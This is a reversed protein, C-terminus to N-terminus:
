FEAEAMPAPVFPRAGFRTLFVAGIAVVSAALEVWLGVLPIKGIAFLALMVLLTGVATTMAPSLPAVRRLAQGAAWGLAVYGYGVVLAVLGAVLLALPILVLTFVMAVLLAPLLMAALGGVAASVIVHRTAATAVASLAGPVRRSLWYGAAALPLAAAMWRLFAAGANRERDLDELPLAMSGRLIEGEVTAGQAQTLNGGALRVDGTVRASEELEVDGGLAFLDGALEGGLTLRGDLLYVAGEIRTGPGASVVGGAVYVDGPAHELEHEGRMLITLAVDDEGVCGAALLLVFFMAVVRRM